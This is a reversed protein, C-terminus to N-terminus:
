NGLHSNVNEDYFAALQRIIFEEPSFGAEIIWPNDKLLNEKAEDPNNGCAEGLMQCNEKENNEKPAITYGETTYIIYRNM